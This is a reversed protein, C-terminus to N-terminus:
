NIRSTNELLVVALTLTVLYKRSIQDTLKFLVFYLYKFFVNNNFHNYNVFERLRYINTNTNKIIIVKHLTINPIFIESVKVADM